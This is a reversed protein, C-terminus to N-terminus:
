WASIMQPQIKCSLLIPRLIQATCKVRSLKEMRCNSNGPPLSRTGLTFLPLEQAQRLIPQWSELLSSRTLLGGLLRDLPLPCYKRLGLLHLTEEVSCHTWFEKRNFLSFTSVTKTPTRRMRLRTVEDDIPADRLKRAPYMGTPPLHYTARQRNAWGLTM